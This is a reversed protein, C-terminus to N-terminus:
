PRARARGDLHRPHRPRQLPHRGRARLRRINDVGATLTQVVRLKPLRDRAVEGDAPGSGTPRARLVRGRRREGPVDDTTSASTACGTPCTASGSPTSRCGSWRTTLTMSGAERAARCRVLDAHRAVRADTSAAVQDIVVRLRAPTTPPRTALRRRVAPGARGARPRSCRGVLEALLERQRAMADVRDDARMVYHAAIGKLM